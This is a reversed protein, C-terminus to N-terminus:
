TAVVAGTLICAAAVSSSQGGLRELRIRCRWRLVASLSVEVLAAAEDIARHLIEKPEERAGNEIRRAVASLAALGYCAAGGTLAHATEILGNIEGDELLRRLRKVRPAVTPELLALYSDLEDDDLMSALEDLIGRDFILESDSCGCAHCLEGRWPLAVSKLAELSSPCPLAAFLAAVGPEACPQRNGGDPSREGEREIDRSM